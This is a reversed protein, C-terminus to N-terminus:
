PSAATRGLCRETRDAVTRARANQGAGPPVLATVCSRRGALRVALLYSTPREPRDPDEVVIFRLIMADPRFTRGKGRGRWEVTEGLSSFGGKGTAEALRLDAEGGGPLELILSERLDGETRRLRYGALGACRQVSWGGEDENRELTRCHDLRTYRQSREPAAQAQPAAIATLTLLLAFARM